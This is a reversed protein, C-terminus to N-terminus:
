RHTNDPHSLRSPISQVSRILGETLYALWFLEFVLLMSFCFWTVPAWLVMDNTKEPRLALAVALGSITILYVISDRVPKTWKEVFIYSGGGWAIITLVCFVAIYQSVWADILQVLSEFAM